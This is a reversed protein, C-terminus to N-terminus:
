QSPPKRAFPPPLRPTLVCCLGYTACLTWSRKECRGVPGTGFTSPIVFATALDPSGYPNKSDCSGIETRKSGGFGRNPTFRSPSGPNQTLSLPRARTLTFYKTYGGKDPVYLMPKKLPLFTTRSLLIKCIWFKVLHITEIVVFLENLTHLDICKTFKLYISEHSM